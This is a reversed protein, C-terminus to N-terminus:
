ASAPYEEFKPPDLPCGFGAKGCKYELHSGMGAAAWKPCGCCSCYHQGRVIEVHECEVCIALRRDREKLPVDESAVARMLSRVKGMLRLKATACRLKRRVVPASTTPAVPPLPERGEYFEQLRERAFERWAESM